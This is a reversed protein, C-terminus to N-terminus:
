AFRGHWWRAASRSAHKPLWKSACVVVALQRTENSAAFPRVLRQLSTALTRGRRRRSIVILRDSGSDEETVQVAAQRKVGRTRTHKQRRVRPGNDFPGMPRPTNHVRSKAAGVIALADVPDNYVPKNHGYVHMMSMPARRCPLLQYVDEWIDHHRVPHKGKAVWGRHKYLQLNGFIGVCWKFDRCPCMEQSNCM